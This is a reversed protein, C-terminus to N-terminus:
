QRRMSQDARLVRVALTVARDLDGDDMVVLADRGGARAELARQAARPDAVAADPVDILLPGLLIGAVPAGPGRGGVPRHHYAVPGSVLHGQTTQLPPMPVSEGELGALLGALLRLQDRSRRDCWARVEDVSLPDAARELLRLAPEYVKAKKGTRTRRLARGGPHERAVRQLSPHEAFRRADHGNRKARRFAATGQDQVPAHRTAAGAAAHVAVLAAVLVRNEAVDYARSPTTCVFLNQDGFTSARASMTESWLIPGRLGGRCREHHTVLATALARVTTPLEDLLREAEPSTAVAAGVLHTVTGPPLGTIAAVAAVPDFPRRLRFWIDAVADHGAAGWPAPPPAGLDREGGGPRDGLTV